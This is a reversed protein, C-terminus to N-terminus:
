PTVAAAAAKRKRRRAVAPAGGSSTSIAADLACRLLQQVLAGSSSDGTAACLAPVVNDRLWAYVAPTLVGSNTNTTARSLLAQLALRGGETLLRGTEPSTVIYESMSHCWALVADAGSGRPQQQQQDLAQDLSSM